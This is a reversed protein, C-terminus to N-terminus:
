NFAHWMKVNQSKNVYIDLSDLISLCEYHQATVVLSISLKENEIRWCSCSYLFLTTQWIFISKAASISCQASPHRRSYLTLSFNFSLISRINSKELRKNTVGKITEEHKKLFIFYCIKKSKIDLLDIRIMLTFSFLGDVM